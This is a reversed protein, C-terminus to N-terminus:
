GDPPPRRCPALQLARRQPRDVRWRTEVLKRLAGRRFQEDLHRANVEWDLEGIHQRFWASSQEWSAAYNRDALLALWARAGRAAEAVASDSAGTPDQAVLRAASLLALGM